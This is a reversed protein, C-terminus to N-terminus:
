SALTDRLVAIVRAVDADDSLERGLILDNLEPDPMELIARFARQDAESARPYINDFYTGLLLDHEKMGRRCLWRLRAIESM